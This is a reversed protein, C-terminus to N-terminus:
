NQNSSDIEGKRKLKMRRMKERVTPWSYKSANESLIHNPGHGGLSPGIPNDHLLADFAQDFLALSKEQDLSVVDDVSKTFKKAIAVDVLDQVLFKAGSMRGRNHFGPIDSLMIANFPGVELNPQGFFWHEWLQRCSIDVPFTWGEPIQRISGDAWAFGQASTIKPMIRARQLAREIDNCTAKDISAQTLLGPGVLNYIPNRHLVVSFVKDFVAFLPGYDLSALIAESEVFRNTIAIDILELVVTRTSEWTRESDASVVGTDQIHRLPIIQKESDGLFWLCWMERCPLNPISVKERRHNADEDIIEVQRDSVIDSSKAVPVSRPSHRLTPVPPNKLSAAPPFKKTSKQQSKSAKKTQKGRRGSNSTLTKSKAPPSKLLVAAADYISMCTELPMKSLDDIWGVLTHYTAVHELKSMIDRAHALNHKCKDYIFDHGTLLRFPGIHNLSDGRFWYAWLVRTDLVPFVWGEPARRISGDSWAYQTPPQVQSLYQPPNSSLITVTEPQSERRPVLRKPHQSLQQSEQPSIHPHSLPEVVEIEKTLDIEVPQITPANQVIQQPAAASSEKQGPAPLSTPQPTRLPRLMSNTLSDMTSQFDHSVTQASQTLLTARCIQEPLGAVQREVVNLRSHFTEVAEEILRFRADQADVILELKDEVCQFIRDLIASSDFGEDPGSVDITEGQVM